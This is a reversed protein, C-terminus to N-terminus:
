RKSLWEKMESIVRSHTFTQGNKIQSRGIEITEAQEESLEFLDQDSSDMISQLAQLFNLDNSERIKAILNEKIQDCTDM